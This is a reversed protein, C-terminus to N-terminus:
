LTYRFNPHDDGLNDLENPPLDFRHDRQGQDRSKNEARLGFYLATCCIGAMMNLAFGTGFGEPYSPAHKSIFVNSSVLAACNGGGIQFAAGIVRRYGTGLNNM